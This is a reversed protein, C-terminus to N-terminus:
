IVIVHITLQTKRPYHSVAEFNTTIQSPSLLLLHCSGETPGKKLFLVRFRKALFLGKIKRYAHIPSCKLNQAICIANLSISKEEEGRVPEPYICDELGNEEQTRCTSKEASAEQTNKCVPELLSILTHWGNRYIWLCPRSHEFLMSLPALLQHCCHHNQCHLHQNKQKQSWELNNLQGNLPFAGQWLCHQLGLISHWLIAKICRTVTWLCAVLSSSIMVLCPTRVVQQLFLPLYHFYSDRADHTGYMPM